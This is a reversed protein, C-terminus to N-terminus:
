FHSCPFEGTTWPKPRLVKLVPCRAKIGGQTALIGYATHNPWVSFFFFFPLTVGARKGERWLELFVTWTSNGALCWFVVTLAQAHRVKSSARLTPALDTPCKSVPREIARRPGPSLWGSWIPSSPHGFSGLPPEEFYNRNSTGKAWLREWDNATMRFKRSGIRSGLPLVSLM